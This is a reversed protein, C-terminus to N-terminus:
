MGIFTRYSIGAVTSLLIGKKLFTRRDNTFREATVDQPRCSSLDAPFRNNKRYIKMIWTKFTIYKSDLSRQWSWLHTPLDIVIDPAFRNSIRSGNAVFGSNVLIPWTTTVATIMIIFLPIAAIRIFLGLLVLAGCVMEFTFYFNLFRSRFFRDKRIPQNVLEPFCFSKFEKPFFYWGVILRPLIPRNDSVTKFFIDTLM